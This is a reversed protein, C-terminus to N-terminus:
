RRNPALRLRAKPPKLLKDNEDDPPSTFMVNDWKPQKLPGTGRFQFLGDVVPKLPLTILGLFGRANMRITMDLTKRNLDATGDGTFTMSSTDTYFDRTSLVGDKVKFSCFAETAQQFGAKRDVVAALLPSLPGFIPVSFLEGEELAIHGEGNLGAAEKGAQQQFNMRGTVFGKAQKDFGCATSLEPLSLHTWDIEGDVHQGEGDGYIVDFNARLPGDFLSFALDRVETRGPKVRVNTELGDLLLDQGAFHYSVKGPTSGHVKFDTKQQAKMLGITGSGSLAPPNHFGYEELHDAVNPLFMRLVPAPWFNGEIGELTLTSPERNYRVRDVKAKGTLPGGHAKRMAYNSYDFEVTGDTFDLFDHDLKMSVQARNFPTGKYAMHTAKVTGTVGWAHPDSRSAHGEVSGDVTTNDRESFDNLVKGLPVKDFFDKWVSAKLNGAASWRIEDDKVLLRAKLQGDPRKAILNDLFLNKGDFSVDSELRSATHRAYSVNDAALHGTIHFTPPANMPWEIHGGANLDPRSQFGVERLLGGADIARLIPPLDLNSRMEFRASRTSLDYEM